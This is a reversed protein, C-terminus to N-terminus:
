KWKMLGGDAFMFQLWAGLWVSTWSAVVTVVWSALRPDILGKGEAAGLALLFALAGAVRLFFGRTAQRRQRAKKRNEREEWEALLAENEAQERREREDTAARKADVAEYIDKM